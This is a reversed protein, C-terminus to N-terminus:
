DSSSAFDPKPISPPDPTPAMWLDEVEQGGTAQRSLLYIGGIMALFTTLAVITPTEMIFQYVLAQQPPDIGVLGGLSLAAITALQAVGSAIAWVISVLIMATMISILLNLPRRLLSEYGRSLSDLPDAHQENAISALALPTALFSGFLLLGIPIAIIAIMMAIPIELVAIGAAMRLLLSLVVIALGIALSCLTPVIAAFWASPTRRCSRKILALTPEMSRDASLLAGQRALYVAVPTWILLSWVVLLFSATPQPRNLAMWLSTPNSSFGILALNDGIPTDFTQWHHRPPLFTFFGLQWVLSAAAVVFLCVPSAAIRMVRILRLPGFIDIWDRARSLLGSELDYGDHVEETTM